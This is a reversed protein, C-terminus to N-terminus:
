NKKQFLIGKEVIVRSETITYKISTWILLKIIIYAFVVMIAVFVALAFYTTLPTKTSEILYVNMNGIFSIGASYLFFLFGLVFMSILIGKSYVIINPQAEYLIKEHLEEKKEKGFM